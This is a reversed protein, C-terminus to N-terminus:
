RAVRHLIAANQVRRVSLANPKKPPKLNLRVRRNITVHGRKKSTPPCIGVAEAMRSVRHVSTMKRHTKQQKVRYLDWGIAM